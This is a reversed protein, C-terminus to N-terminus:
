GALLTKRECFFLVLWGLGAGAGVLSCPGLDTDLFTKKNPNKNREKEKKTSKKNKNRKEKKKYKVRNVKKKMEQTIHIIKGKKNQKM